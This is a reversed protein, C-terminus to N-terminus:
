QAWMTECQDTQGSQLEHREAWCVKYGERDNGLWQQELKMGRSKPTAKITPASYPLVQHQIKCKIQRQQPQVNNTALM